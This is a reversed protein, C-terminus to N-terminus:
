PPFTFFTPNCQSYLKDHQQRRGEYVQLASLGLEQLKELFDDRWRVLALHGEVRTGCLSGIGFKSLFEVSRKCGSGCPLTTKVFLIEGMMAVVEVEFWLASKTFLTPYCISHVVDRKMHRLMLHLVYLIAEDVFTVLLVIYRMTRCSEYLVLPV